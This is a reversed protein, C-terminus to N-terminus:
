QKDKLYNMYILYNVGSIKSHKQKLRLFECFGIKKYLKVANINTDAVELVLEKYNSLEIISKIISTAVGQGRYNQSTAVFEVMGMGSNIEFPYVKKEFEHRLRLYAFSGMFFGLNKKFEKKNLIVSPTKGDSCAAMGAIEDNIVSIYFNDLNFMHSFTKELKTKDKTFFKLWQFFGDVFIKSMQNKTDSEFEKALIIKM